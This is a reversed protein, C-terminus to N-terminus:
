KSFYFRCLKGEIGCDSSNMYCLDVCVGAALDVYKLTNCLWHLRLLFTM